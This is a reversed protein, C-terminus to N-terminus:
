VGMPSANYAALFEDVRRKAANEHIAEGIAEVINGDVIKYYISEGSLTSEYEIFDSPVSNVEGKYEALDEGKIIYRFYKM